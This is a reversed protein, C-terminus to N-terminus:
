FHVFVIRFAIGVRVGVTRQRHNFLFFFRRTRFEPRQDIYAAAEGSVNRAVRFFRLFVAAKGHVVSRNRYRGMQQERLEHVFAGLAIKREEHSHHQESIHTNPSCKESPM